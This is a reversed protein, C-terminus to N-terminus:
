LAVKYYFNELVSDDKYLMYDRFDEFGQNQANEEKKNLTQDAMKGILNDISNESYNIDCRSNHFGNHVGVRLAAGTMGVTMDADADVVIGAAKIAGVLYFQFLKKAKKDKNLDMPCNSTVLYSFGHTLTAIDESQKKEKREKLYTGIM